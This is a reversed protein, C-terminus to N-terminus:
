SAAGAETVSRPTTLLGNLLVDLGWDFRDPGTGSLLEMGLRAIQPYRGADASAIECALASDEEAAAPTDQRTGQEAAVATAYLLLLDLGWAAERDPVGGTRLLALASDILRLYNPGSPHTALTMRAIEPYSFLVDLYRTLMVKLRVRWDGDAPDPPTVTGLLADLIQAHLDATDQVYVYLSAAGTDLDAAIRRMTVKSLGQEKLIALATEIIRQRTLPTRAPRETRRHAPLPKGSSPM